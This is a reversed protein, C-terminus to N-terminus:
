YSGIGSQVTEGQWNSCRSEATHHGPDGWREAWLYPEGCYECEGGRIHLKM